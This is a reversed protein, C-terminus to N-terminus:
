VYLFDAVLVLVLAPHSVMVVFVVTCAAAFSHLTRVERLLDRSLGSRSLFMAGEMGGIAGDCNSDM